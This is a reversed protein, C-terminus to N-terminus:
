KKQFIFKYDGDEIIIMNGDLTGKFTNGYTTEFTGGSLIRIIITEDETRFIGAAPGEGALMMLCNGDYFQIEISGDVLEPMSSKGYDQLEIYNKGTDIGTPNFPEVINNGADDEISVLAYKGLLRDKGGGSGTCGALLSISLMFVLIIALTRKMTWERREKKTNARESLHNINM